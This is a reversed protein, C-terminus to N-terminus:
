SRRVCDAGAPPLTAPAPRVIKARAFDTVDRADLAGFYRSDFSREAPAWLWIQHPGLTYSRRAVQPLARGSGDREFTVSSGLCHGNVAISDPRLEVVDGAVAAVLKLLPATDAVCPGAELYGRRAGLEAFDKPTCIVVTDGREIPREVPSLEYLGVPMSSSANIMWPHRVPGLALGAVVALLM